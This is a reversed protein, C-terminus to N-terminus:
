QLLQSRRILLDFTSADVGVDNNFDYEDVFDFRHLVTNYFRDFQLCPGKTVVSYGDPINVHRQKDGIMVVRPPRDAQTSLPPQSRIAALRERQAKTKM